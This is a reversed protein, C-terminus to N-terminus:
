FATSPGGWVSSGGSYLRPLMPTLGRLRSLPRSTAQAGLSALLSLLQIAGRCLPENDGSPTRRPVVREVGEPDTNKANSGPHRSTVRWGPSNM